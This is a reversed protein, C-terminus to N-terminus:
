DEPELSWQRAPLDFQEALWRYAVEISEDTPQHGTMHMFCGVADERGYLRYVEQAQQIYQWSQPRDAQGAILLFSRPAILALAHHGDLTFKDHNIQDGFYWLDSWNTFDWGIGFDSSITAKVREDFAATYFAMKGGLSHGIALVRDSDVAPRDLLLDLARSTDHILKGIGSWHPNDELLREAAAQWWAHGENPEPEPVTNYPFAEMCAVVYGQQVLHRGFQVNPREDMPARAALDYGAMLDPHYYPVVAAPRPGDAPELPEMLLVQQQHEPGTPQSYLTGRFCPAEFRELVEATQEYDGFSPAGIVQRWRSLIRPRIAEWGELTPGCGSFIPELPLPDGIDDVSPRSLQESLPKM